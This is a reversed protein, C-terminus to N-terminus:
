TEHARLHTYSVPDMEFGSKTLEKMPNLVSMHEIASALLRRGKKVSRLATGKIALNNAETIGGTFIISKKEPANILGAVKERAEELADRAETGVSHSSSPNGIRETLYPRAFALVRPEVPVASGHDLYIREMFRNLEERLVM